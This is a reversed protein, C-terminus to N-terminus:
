RPRLHFKRGRLKSPVVINLDIRHRRRAVESMSTLKQIEEETAPRAALTRVAERVGARRQRAAKSDNNLFDVRAARAAENTEHRRSFWGANKAERSTAFQANTM